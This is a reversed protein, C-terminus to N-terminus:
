DEIVILRKDIIRAIIDSDNMLAFVEKTEPDEVFQSAYKGFLVRQGVQVWPQGNVERGNADVKRYAKWCDPGISVVCGTQTKVLELKEDQVMVIGGPSMTQVEDVKVAIRHGVVELVSEVTRMKMTQEM